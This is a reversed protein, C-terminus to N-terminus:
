KIATILWQISPARVIYSIGQFSKEFSMDWTIENAWLKKRMILDSQFKACLVDTDSGHEIGFKSVMQCSFHTNHTSSIECSKLKHLPPPPPLSPYGINSRVRILKLGLMSLYYCTGTWHPIFNSIWEWVEVSCNFNPFQFYNWGM